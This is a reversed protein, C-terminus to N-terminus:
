AALHESPSPAGRPCASCAAARNCAVRDRRADRRGAALEGPIHAGRGFYIEDPTQGEFAAHPIRENHETVYFEVLRRVTAINDLPHLYLWRHKLSRWWAEIMSNSFSVDIQAIVRHLASGDFLPAVDGNLNEVGSEMFVDAKTSAPLNGAARTLVGHTNMPDLRGAVTWALVKRSFNDIVAHVYAKTGDLLRIITVDIHWADNPAATRLGIKSKAPHLRLRPRGWGRERILKGWTAPHAFVKGIRQAHLALGRISMHRHETSQVMGGIVEVEAYTLRQPMSRPCSPRDDLRCVEEARVWVHYRASSLRLVRLAASLPMAQRAREVAGVLRRKGAADPVRSRELSFGSVRLLALVLRLVATLMAVRGQLKAIRERLAPEGGDAPVLSVIEGVGRRIWSVATSRPIELEPFLEPDGSHIIQEKIRHDYARRSRHSM